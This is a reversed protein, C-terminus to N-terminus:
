RYRRRRRCPGAAVPGPRVHGAAPDPRSHKRPEDSVGIRQTSIDNYRGSTVMTRMFQGHTPPAATTDFPWAGDPAYPARVTLSWSVVSAPAPNTLIGAKREQRAGQTPSLEPAGVLGDQLVAGHLVDRGTAMGALGGIGLEAVDEETAERRVAAEIQGLVIRLDGTGLEIGPAAQGVGLKRERDQRLEDGVN